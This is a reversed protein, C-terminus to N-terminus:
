AIVNNLLFWYYAAINSQGIQWTIRYNYAERLNRVADKDHSGISAAFTYTVNQHTIHKYHCQMKVIIVSHKLISSAIIKVIWHQQVALLKWKKRREEFTLYDENSYYNQYIYWEIISSLDRIEQKNRLNISSMQYNNLTWRPILTFLDFLLIDIVSSIYVKVLLVNRLYKGQLIILVSSFLSSHLFGENKWTIANVKKRQFFIFYSFIILHFTAIYTLLELM